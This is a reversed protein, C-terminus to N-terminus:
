FGQPKKGTLYTYFTLMEDLRSEADCLSASVGKIQQLSKVKARLTKIRYRLGEIVKQGVFVNSM